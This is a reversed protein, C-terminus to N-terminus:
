HRPFRVRGAFASGCFSLLRGTAILPPSVAWPRRRGYLCVLAWRCHCTFGCVTPMCCPQRSPHGSPHRPARCRTCSANGRSCSESAQQGPVCSGISVFAWHCACVRGTDTAPFGCVTPVCPDICRCVLASVTTVCPGPSVTPVCSPALHSPHGSPHRPARCRTCSDNGRPCSGSAQQGPVCSGISDARLPRTARVACLSARTPPFSRVSPTASQM